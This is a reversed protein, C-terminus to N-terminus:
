RVLKDFASDVTEFDFDAMYLKTTTADPHQFAQGIVAEPIGERKLATAFSHRAVYTTLPTSLGAQEGLTKLDANVQGIVKNLRNKIQMPTKHISTSLVPFVYSDPGNHTFPRFAEILAGAPANLKVNFLGGTKQRVYEVRRKGESDTTINRWRLQALDVFNIGGMYFSFMFVSQALRERDTTPTLDEIRRIAPLDIARKRTKVSFKGVNFKHREAVNRAFPYKDAKAVGNAIAKNLVARLTRFRFSLTVETLGSARLANEWDHCFAVTVRDFPVDEAHYEARIFKLLQNRLDKYNGANGVQGAAKMAASLEEIYALLSVRRTAKSGEIAKASVTKADHAEDDDVLARAAEVYKEEWKRLNKLLEERFPEPYSRRIENKEDNWYRPHLSFGTAIHKRTKDKHIRVVFPHSGDALKKGKFYVVKVLAAGEKHETTKGM